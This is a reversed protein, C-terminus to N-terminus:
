SVNLCLTVTDTSFSFMVKLNKTLLVIYTEFNSHWVFLFLIGSLSFSLILFCLM